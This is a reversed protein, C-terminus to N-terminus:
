TPADGRAVERGMAWAAAGGSRAKLFGRRNYQENM